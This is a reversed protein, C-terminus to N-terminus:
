LYSATDKTQWPPEMHARALAAPELARSSLRQLRDQLLSHRDQHCPIVALKRGGASATGLLHLLPGRSGRLGGRFGRGVLFSLVVCSLHDALPPVDLRGLRAPRAHQLRSGSSDEVHRSTFLHLPTVNSNRRCLQFTLANTSGGLGARCICITTILIMLQSPRTRKRLGHSCRARSPRTAKM